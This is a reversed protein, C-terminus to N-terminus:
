FDLNFSLHLQRYVFVLIVSQGYVSNYPKSHVACRLINYVSCRLIRLYSCRLAVCSVLLQSSYLMCLKKKFQASYAIDQLGSKKNTNSGEPGSYYQSGLLLLYSFLSALWTVLFLYNCYKPRFVCLCRKGGVTSWM